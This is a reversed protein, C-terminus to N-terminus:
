LPKDLVAELAREFTGVIHPTGFRRRCDARITERDYRPLENVLRVIAAAISAPEIAALRGNVGDVLLEANAGPADTLVVPTGCALAELTANSFADYRSALVFAHAARIFPLPEPVYGAFTVADGLALESRLRELNAREPGDGIITLHVHPHARRVLALAHLLLDYAKLPVLRGVSVLSPEGALRAARETARREIEDVDIPNGVVHMRRDGGAYQALDAKMAGSQCIVGDAERLATIILRRALRHKLVSQKVLAAMDATVPSAPRLVLRTRRPLLPKALGLTLNMRLTSFVLDPATGRVHRLASVVPYRASPIHGITTVDVDAPLKALYHGTPESVMLAPRFRARDISRLLEFMVRDPGGRDLSPIAFLVRAPSRTM